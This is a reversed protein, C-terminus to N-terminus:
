LRTAIILKGPRDLKDMYNYEDISKVSWLSQKELKLIYEQYNQSGFPESNMFIFIMGGSKVLTVLNKIAKPGLASYGFSGVCLLADYTKSPLLFRKNLDIQELKGYIKTQKAIKLMEPSIDYGDINSYGLKDLEKGVLGTGCGVDIIEISKIPHFSEFKNVSIYPAIYGYENILDTNYDCAWEDYLVKSDIDSSSGSVKALRGSLKKM